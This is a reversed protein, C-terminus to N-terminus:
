RMAGPLAFATRTPRVADIIRRIIEVARDFTASSFNEPHGMHRGEPSWGGLYDVCCRAGVAEALALAQCTDDIHRRCHDEDVGIVGGWAGVEAIVVDEAEFAQRVEDIRSPDQRCLGPCYAARYGLERHLRAQERPDAPADFIPAGLRIM